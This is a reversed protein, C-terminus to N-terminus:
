DGRVIMWFMNLIAVHYPVPPRYLLTTLCRSKLDDHM